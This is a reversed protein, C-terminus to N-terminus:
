KRKSPISKSMLVGELQPTKPSAAIGAMGAIRDSQIKRKKSADAPTMKLNSKAEITASAVQSKGIAKARTKKPTAVLAPTNQDADTPRNNNAVNNSQKTATIDRDSSSSSLVAVHNDSSSSLVSATRRSASPTKSIRKVKSQSSSDVLNVVVEVESAVTPTSQVKSSGQVSLAPSNLAVESVTVTNAQSSGASSRADMHGKSSTTVASDAKSAEVTASTSGQESATVSSSSSVATSEKQM